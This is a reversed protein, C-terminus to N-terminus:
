RSFLILFTSPSYGRLIFAVAMQELKAEIRMAYIYCKKLKVRKKEDWGAAPYNCFILEFVEKFFKIQPKNKIGLSALITGLIIEISM